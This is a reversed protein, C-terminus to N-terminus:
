KVLTGSDTYLLLMIDEEEGTQSNIYILADEGTDSGTCFFEYCEAETGDPKPIICRKVSNVKLYPSLRSQAESLTIGSAFDKRKVHNTLYTSAELSVVAGDSLSVGVKILDPYCYIDNKAYVFNITCINDSVAYYSSKMNGYGLKDLFKKAINVANEESVDSSSILGSYLISKIYGGQKTVSVTYRGSTFTFCPLKSKEDSSYVMRNVSTNLCRAAIRKAEEETKVEASSVLRSKKNLIQDSFPGDYLLTPYSEFAKASQSFGTSMPTVSVEAASKIEGDTIKAGSNVIDTMTNASKLFKESYKLLTLLNKHEEESVAQGSELKKGIFQAYDGAQSLFKYTSGLEMQSAPLRSLANKAATCEAFLDKALEAQEKASNSYVSKTLDTNVTSLCEGLESLSHQYSTELLRKYENMNRTNIIALAAIIALGVAMFSTIRVKGRKTM